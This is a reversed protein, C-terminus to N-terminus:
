WRLREKLSVYRPNGIIIHDLLEIDLLEGAKVLQKTVEIDEPSPTPDGSPHNHCVIIHSCKRTVAPLFIEASRLVSSNVTGQYLRINAVVCNKTNLVLVRLEEHDLYRMDLGVLQVADDACKIQYAKLPPRMLRRAVELLAQLRVALGEDFEYQLMEGIETNLVGTLGGREVLLTKIRMLVKEHEATTGKGVVLMLLDADSLSEVGYVQVNELLRQQRSSM